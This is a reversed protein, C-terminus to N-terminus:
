GTCHSHTRATRSRSCRTSPSRSPRHSDSSSSPTSTRRRCTVGSAKIRQVFRQIRSAYDFVQESRGQKTHWLEGKLTILAALTTVRFRRELAAWIARPDGIPLGILLSRCESDQLASVLMLHAQRQLHTRAEREKILQKSTSSSAADDAPPDQAAAADPDVLPWMHGYEFLTRMAYAWGEYDGAHLAITPPARLTDTASGTSM